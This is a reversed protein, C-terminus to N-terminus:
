HMKSVVRQEQQGEALIWGVLWGVVGGCVFLVFLFVWWPGFVRVVAIHFLMKLTKNDGFKFLM